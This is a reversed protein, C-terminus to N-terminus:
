AGMRAILEELQKIKEDLKAIYYKYKKRTYYGVEYLRDELARKKARLELVANRLLKKLDDRRMWIDYFDLRAKTSVKVGYRQEVDKIERIVKEYWEARIENEKAPDIIYIGPLIEAIVLKKRLEQWRSKISALRAAAERSRPTRVEKGNEISWDMVSYETPVVDVMVKIRVLQSDRFEQVRKLLETLKYDVSELIERIEEEVEEERRGGVAERLREVDERLKQLVETLGSM